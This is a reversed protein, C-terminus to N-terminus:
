ISGGEVLVSEVTLERVFTSGALCAMMRSFALKGLKYGSTEVYTIKPSYLAPFFGNSISIIGVDEPVRLGKEYIAQMAGILTLDGMCFIADPRKKANLRKLTESKAEETDLQIAIDLKTDPAKQKFTEEFSELRKKSITLNLHGFLGLINKKKKEILVEAAMRAADKDALCIKNCAEFDPVRDIFIVPINADNLKLFPKIDTTEITLSAFLGAIRNRRLLNINSEETLANEASQMILLSYDNMRAEEEVASIFSDYFYNTVSPILIGLVRSQNTRLQIAYANPEYEIQRALEKVRNKTKESIDPHDKLARSVTSISIGLMESLKKLTSNNQM